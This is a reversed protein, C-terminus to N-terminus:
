SLERGGCCRSWLRHRHGAGACVIQYLATGPWPREEFDDEDDDGMETGDDVTGSRPPVVCPIATTPRM